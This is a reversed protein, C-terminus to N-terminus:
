HRAASTGTDHTHQGHNPSPAATNRDDTQLLHAAAGAETLRVDLKYEPDLASVRPWDSGRKPVIIGGLAGMGGGRITDGTPNEYIATLRYVHDDRIPLGLRWWLRHQPMGTLEGGQDTLPQTELM